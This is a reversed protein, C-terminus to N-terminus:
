YNYTHGFSIIRKEFFLYSLTAITFSIILSLLTVFFGAISIIQPYTHLIFYHCLGLILMHCLYVGYSIIGIKQLFKNELFQRLWNDKGITLTVILLAYFLAFYTNLFYFNMPLFQFSILVYILAFFILLYNLIDSNKKCFALTKDNTTLLASLVGILLSDARCQILAFSEIWNSSSFRLLLALVFLISFLILIARKSFIFILVPIILYFQEEVALSWTSVMGHSGLTVQQAMVFNQTYTAYSWMPLTNEFLWPIKYNLSSYFLIIFIFFYLYYVPFVRCFRRIYFAKFYNKSGKNKFLIGGLLFGSLVFFLDVGSWCYSSSKKIFNLITSNRTHILNNFCHWYLVMLMAVARIGDYVPTRTSTENSFQKELIM